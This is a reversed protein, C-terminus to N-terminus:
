YMRLLSFNPKTLFFEAEGTLLIWKQKSRFYFIHHFEISDSLHVYRFKARLIESNNFWAM